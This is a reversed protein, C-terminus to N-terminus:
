NRTEPKTNRTEHKQNRTEPQPTSLVFSLPCFVFSSPQLMCLSMCGGDETRQRRDDTRLESRQREDNLAFHWCCSCDVSWGAMRGVACRTGLLSVGWANEHPRGGRPLSVRTAECHRALTSAALTGSGRNPVESRARCWRAARATAAIGSPWNVQQGTSRESLQREDNLAPLWCCSCDVSCGLADQSFPSGAREDDVRRTAGKRVPLIGTRGTYGQEVPGQVNGHPRITKRHALEAEVFM